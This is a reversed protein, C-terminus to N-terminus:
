FARSTPPIADAYKRFLFRRVRTLLNALLIGEISSLRVIQRLKAVVSVDRRPCNPVTFHAWVNRARPKAYPSRANLDHM